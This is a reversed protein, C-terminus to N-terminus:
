PNKGFADSQFPLHSPRFDIVERIKYHNNISGNPKHEQTIDLKVKYADDVMSGGRKIANIAIDTDTIDMYEHADGFKFRWMKAQVDYVPSYVSVWATITQPQDTASEELNAATIDLIAVAESKNIKEGVNNGEDFEVTEYGERALPQVVKKANSVAKEDRLLDLTQPYVLVTNNEGEINIQIVDRGDKVELSTSTIKRGDLSKLLRFLGVVSGGTTSIIGLWELFDKASAIDESALFSKTSDWITQVVHLDFQFCKHEVDTGILVKIAAKEGNFKKNAIKCLESLGLLAPALDAVDMQHESLVPGDYRVTVVAASM